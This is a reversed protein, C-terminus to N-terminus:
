VCVSLRRRLSIMGARLREKGTLHEVDKMMKMAGGELRGMDRKYLPAGIQICCGLHPRVLDPSIPLIM